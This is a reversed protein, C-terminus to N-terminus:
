TSSRRSRGERAENVNDLIRRSPSRRGQERRGLAPVRDAGARLDPLDLVPDGRPLGGGPRLPHVGLPQRAHDRRHRGEERGAQRPRRRDTCRTASSTGASSSRARRTASRSTTASASSRRTSAKVLNQAPLEPAAGGSAYRESTTVEVAARREESSAACRVDASVAAQRHLRGIDNTLGIVFLMIVLLFGVASAREIVGFPVRRGRVKEVLSWFIHGGDLPLFPFLNILGLSLSILPSSSSGRAPTSASRRISRAALGGGRRLDAEAAAPEFIRGIVSLTRSTVFWM